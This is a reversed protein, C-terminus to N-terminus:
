LETGHHINHKEEPNEEKYESVFQRIHRLVRKLKYIESDKVVTDVETIKVKAIEAEIVNFYWRIDKKFDAALALEHKLNSRSEYVGHVVRVFRLARFLILFQITNGDGLDGVPGALYIIEVILSIYVVVFDLIHPVHHWVIKGKKAGNAHHVAISPIDKVVEGNDDFTVDIDGTAKNVSEVKGRRTIVKKMANTEYSIVEVDDDKEIKRYCSCFFQKLGFVYISCFLEIAFFVLIAFSVYHVVNEIFYHTRHPEFSPPPRYCHPLAAAHAKSSLLFRRHHSSGSSAASSSAHLNNGNLVTRNYHADFCADVTSFQSASGLHLQYEKCCKTLLTTSTVSHSNACVYNSPVYLTGPQTETSFSPPIVRDYFMIEMFVCFVDIALLFVVAFRMNPSELIHFLHTRGHANPKGCCTSNKPIHVGDQVLHEDNVFMSNYKNETRKKATAVNALISFSSGRSRGANEREDQLLKSNRRERRHKEKINELFVVSSDASVLKHSTSTKEVKSM